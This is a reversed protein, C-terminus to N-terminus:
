STSIRAVMPRVIAISRIDTGNRQEVANKLSKAVMDGIFQYQQDIRHLDDCFEPTMVFNTIVKVAALMSIDHGHKKSTRQDQDVEVMVVIDCMGKAIQDRLRKIEEIGDEIAEYDSMPVQAARELKKIIDM